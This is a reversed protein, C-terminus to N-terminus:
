DNANENKVTNIAPIGLIEQSRVVKQQFAQLSRSLPSLDLWGTYEECRKEEEVIRLELSTLLNSPMPMANAKALKEFASYRIQYKGKRIKILEVPGPLVVARNYALDAFSAQLEIQMPSVDRSSLQFKTNGLETSIRARFLQGLPNFYSVSDLSLIERKENLLVRLVANLRVDFIREESFTTSIRGICLDMGDQKQIVNYNSSDADIEVSELLHEQEANRIREWANFSLAGFVALALLSVVIDVNRFIM